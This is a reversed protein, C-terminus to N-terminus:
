DPPKGPIKKNFVKKDPVEQQGETLFGFTEDVIDQINEESSEEILKEPPNEPPKKIEQKFDARFRYCNTAGKGLWVKVTPRPKKYGKEVTDSPVFFDDAVLDSVLKRYDFGEEACAKKLAAVAIYNYPKDFKGKIVQMRELPVNGGIFSNQSQAVVGLVFERERATDSIEDNTPILKFIEKANLKADELLASFDEQTDECEESLVANLLADALTLVAMYRCYEHLIDPYKETFFDVLSNYKERLEKKGISSIKDIVLPFALGFNDAIINRIERCTKPDLIVGPAAITLLRTNAGGTVNDPLLLTEGTMIPITRWDTTKRLTSDKNLKTRGIGNALAYVLSDLQEKIKNDAVQKEDILFPYDNVDAAAGALGNKTADFSRIIKENGVASAGLYLATTKGARTPAYIYLLFNREGLIKLLIPAVAATVTLRAVPSKKALKYARRWAKLSGRQKLAQVFQSQSDIKVCIKKDDETLSVERRPDIFYNEDEFTCWGGRPVSYTMPFVTENQVNFADLFDVLHKANSSTVPLGKDALDVLKRNNFVIAASQADISKWKGTTNMYALKLKLTKDEVNYIKETIVVPRRCVTIVKGDVIKKIGSQASISFGAPFTLGKLLDHEAVFSLSSIQTQIENKQSLLNKHLADLEAAKEKVARFWDNVSVKKDKTKQNFLVISGKFGSFAKSDFLRAFAAARVVDESFITENDFTEVGSLRELAKDKEVALDYLAKNVAQLEEKLEQSKEPKRINDNQMKQCGKTPFKKQMIDSRFVRHLEKWERRTEKENYGGEVAYQYLTGIGYGPRNFGQWKSECEGEKYEPQTQSWDEWLSCALGENKLAMGVSLWKEYEGDVVSIFELMRRIRFEKLDPNDDAFDFGVSHTPKPELKREVYLANLKEDLQEPTFRVDNVEVVHCLPANDKGLKYNYTGPTRLIRPLDGVGDIKKGNARQRVVDLLLNNRRKIEERNADTVALPESWIYYAHVGFGSNVIISPAFPLFSKAEEFDAALNDSKHADSCIDIDVVVATQYSVAKEDGRKGAKPAVCVLNVAHWVDNGLESLEVAKRAMAERQTQDTVAFSYTVGYGTTFTMLYSFHQAPVGDFLPNFIKMAENIRNQKESDSTICDENSNNASISNVDAETSTRKKDLLIYESTTVQSDNTEDSYDDYM